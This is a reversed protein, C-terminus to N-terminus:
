NLLNININQGILKEESVMDREACIYPGPRLIVLLGEEQALQMFYTINNNGSFDFVGPKREISSWEIYRTTVSM